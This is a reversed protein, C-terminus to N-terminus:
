IEKLRQAVHVVSLLKSNVLCSTIRKIVVVIVLQLLYYLIEKMHGNYQIDYAYQLIKYYAKRIIKSTEVMTRLM